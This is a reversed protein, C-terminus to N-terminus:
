GVVFIRSQNQRPVARRRIQSVGKAGRCFTRRSANRCVATLRKATISTNDLYRRSSFIRHFSSKNWLGGQSTKIGRENLFQFILELPRKAIHFDIVYVARRPASLCTIYELFVAIIVHVSRRIVLEASLRNCRRFSITEQRTGCNM